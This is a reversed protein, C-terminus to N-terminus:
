MIQTTITLIVMARPRLLYLLGLGVMVRLVKAMIITLAIALIVVVMFPYSGGHQPHPFLLLPKTTMAVVQQRDCVFCTLFVFFNVNYIFLLSVRTWLFFHHGRQVSWSTPYRDSLHRNVELQRFPLQNIDWARRLDIYTLIRAGNKMRSLLRNLSPFLDSPIDTEMMVVDATDIGTVDFMNGCQLHLVREIYEGEDSNSENPSSSSASGEAYAPNRVAETISIFKGPNIQVQYNECGLLQVMRIAAEEAIRYRGASLEVGHIYRLNRFQLFAQILIKGTGMGLDFLSEARMAELRKIGMAKNAGRSLLEGYLLSSKAQQAALRDSDTLCVHGRTLHGTEQLSNGYIKYLVSQAFAYDVSIDECFVWSEEIPALGDIVSGDTSDKFESGDNVQTSPREVIYFAIKKMVLWRKENVM